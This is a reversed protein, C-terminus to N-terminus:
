TIRKREYYDGLMNYLLFILEVVKIEEKKNKIEFIIKKLFFIFSFLFFLLVLCFYDKVQM